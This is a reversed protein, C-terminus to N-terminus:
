CEDGGECYWGWVPVNEAKNKSTGVSGQAQYKNKSGKEPNRHHRNKACIYWTGKYLTKGGSCGRVALSIVLIHPHILEVSNPLSLTDKWPYAM